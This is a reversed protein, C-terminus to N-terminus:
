ASRRVENKKLGAKIIAMMRGQHAKMESNIEKYRAKLIAKMEAIIQEMKM